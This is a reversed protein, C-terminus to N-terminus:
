KIENFKLLLRTIESHFTQITSNVYDELDKLPHTEVTLKINALNRVVEDNIAEDNNAPLCYGDCSIKRKLHILLNNKKSRLWSVEDKPYQQYRIDPIICVSYKENKIREDLL